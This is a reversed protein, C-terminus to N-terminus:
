YQIRFIYNCCMQLIFSICDETIEYLFQRRIAFICDTLSNGFFLVAASSNYICTDALQITSSSVITTPWEIDYSWEFGIWSKTMTLIVQCPWHCSKGTLKTQANLIQVIRLIILEPVKFYNMRQCKAPLLSLSYMGTPNEVNRKWSGIVM